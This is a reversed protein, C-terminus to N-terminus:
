TGTKLGTRAAEGLAFRRLQRRLGARSLRQTQGLKGVIEEITETVEASLGARSM